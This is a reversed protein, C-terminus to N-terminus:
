HKRNTSIQKMWDSASLGSRSLSANDTHFKQARKESTMEYTFLYYRRSIDAKKRLNSKHRYSILVSYPKTNSMLFILRHNRRLIQLPAFSRRALRWLPSDCIPYTNVSKKSAFSDSALLTFM